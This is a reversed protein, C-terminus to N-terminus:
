AYHAGEVAAERRERRRGLWPLLLLWLGEGIFCAIAGALPWQYRNVLNSQIDGEVGRAFLQGILGFIEDVDRNSATSRIYGGGGALALEQLAAEDLRSLHTETPVEGRVFRNKYTVNTGRPDGVGIVFVHALKGLKEVAAGANGSVAEGDSILLVARSGRDGNSANTEQDEFTAQAVEFAAAIDTGELSISDTTVANLVTRFYGHDLTLPCMLEAAGSFAVLGFRDGFAKDTLAAIKQKARELRNPAPSEALMSESVDLLILVDHSRTHTVDYSEGWHPQMLGLVLLAAGIITLWYLPRRQRPDAGAVLRPALRSDVFVDLRRARRRDLRRLVVALVGIALIALGVWLWLRDPPIAFGVNM